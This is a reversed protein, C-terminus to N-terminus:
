CSGINENLIILGITDNCQEDIDLGINYYKLAEDFEQQDSYINGINVSNAGIGRKNGTKESIKMSKLFYDLAASYNGENWFVLGLATNCGGEGRKYKAHQALALGQSGLITATDMKGIVRYYYCLWKYHETKESDTKDTKLLGLYHVISAQPSESSQAYCLSFSFMCGLLIGIKFVKRM